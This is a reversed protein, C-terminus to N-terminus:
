TATVSKSCRWVRLYHGIGAAIFFLIALKILGVITFSVDDFYFRYSVYFMFTAIWSFIFSGLTPKLAKTQRPVEAKSLLNDFLQKIYNLKFILYILLCPALLYIVPILNKADM